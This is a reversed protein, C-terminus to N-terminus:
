LDVDFRLTMATDVTLPPPTSHAADEFIYGSNYGASTNFLQFYIQNLGNSDVWLGVALSGTM